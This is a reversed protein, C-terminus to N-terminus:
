VVPYMPDYLLGCMGYPGYQSGRAILMYGANSVGNTQGSVDGWTTGWSNRLIYYDQGNQTGYGVLVVAHDINPLSNAGKTASNKNCGEYDSYIKGNYLQFSRTDAEIAISIPGVNLATMMASDSNPTVDVYSTVKTGSVPTCGKVCSGTDGNGSTYPYSAESCIGGNDKSFDFIGSYYGGNCGLNGYKLGACSVSQQESLDNLKGTKIATASEITSTGSFSYCSGCQKQDRIASVAGRQRWDISSPLSETNLVNEQKVSPISGRLFSTEQAFLEQNYGFGMYQAFEESNMGSYANHGVTYSLNKANTEEIFKDNSLWNDFMHALHHDDNAQIRHVEVWNKFREIVSTDRYTNLSNSMGVAFVAVFSFFKLLGQM